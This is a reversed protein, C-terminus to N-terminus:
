PRVRCNRCSTWTSPLPWRSPRRRIPRRKPTNGGSRDAGNALAAPGRGAGSAADLQARGSWGCGAASANPRRQDETSREHGFQDPCRGSWLTGAGSYWGSAKQQVHREKGGPHAGPWRNTEQSPGANRTMFALVVVFNFICSALPAPPREWGRCRSDQFFESTHDRLFVIKPSMQNRVAGARKSSLHTPSRSFLILLKKM